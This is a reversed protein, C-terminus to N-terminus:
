EETKLKLLDSVAWPEDDGNHIMPFLIEHPDVEMDIGMFPLEKPIIHVDRDWYPVFWDVECHVVGNPRIWTRVKRKPKNGFHFLTGTHKRIIYGRGIEELAKRETQTIKGSRKSMREKRTKKSEQAIRVADLVDLKTYDCCSASGAKQAAQYLKCAKCCSMCNCIEAKIDLYNNFEEKTVKM